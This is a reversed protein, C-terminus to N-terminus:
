KEHCNGFDCAEPVNIEKASRQYLILIKHDSKEVHFEDVKSRSSEDIKSNIIGMCILLNKITMLSNREVYSRDPELKDKSNVDKINSKRRNLISIIRNKKGENNVGNNKILDGKICRINVNDNHDKNMVNEDVTPEELIVFTSEDLGSWITCCKEDQAADVSDVAVEVDAIQFERKEGIVYSWGSTLKQRKGQLVIRLNNIGKLAGQDCRLGALVVRQ